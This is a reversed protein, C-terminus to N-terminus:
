LKGEDRLRSLTVSAEGWATVRPGDWGKGERERIDYVKDGISESLFTNLAKRIAEIDSDTFPTSM